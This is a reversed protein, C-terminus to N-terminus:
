KKNIWVSMEGSERNSWAFYPIATIRFEKYHYDETSYLAGSCSSEDVRLANGSIVNVGGLLDWRYKVTLESDSPLYIGALNSGNDVEELCYVLPGQQLAVKGANYRLKPHAYIREVPMDLILNVQDGRSWNRKICLYGDKILEGIEVSERNIKLWAKKCWGPLRLALTFEIEQETDITIGIDGNWPYNTIQKISIDQGAIRMEASSNNYLNVFVKNDNNQAYIYQGISALLRAINPPCCACGFWKQRRIKVHNHDPRKECTEPHVELPNVYFFGKGDESIGSLVGNYLARELVDIYEGKQELQFMRWAFFVLAIAACTETYALDNPLDYDCSFSEQQASSGLGGTIYMQKGTINKWLRQCTQLLSKDEGALDAMASYMYIARVSHGVAVEQERVPLQAQFYELDPRASVGETWHSKRGRKEWEQHFFYPEKGREDIFYKALRRYREEGTIRYLKMLALEIEQHGPYGKVKGPEPGFKRDILEVFGIMVELLKRKGTAQYYAVAAELMHGACYLEHCETLNSWKKDPEVITFYTNLYADAEQAKAILDIVSDALKELERDPNSTLQYAVAELWKAIDSDQFVIGMFKGESEGAAIRFNELANSPEMDPIENNLVKWQYPIVEKRILENKIGLLGGNLKVSRLPIELGRVGETM